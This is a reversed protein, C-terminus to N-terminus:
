ESVGPTEDLPENIAYNYDDQTIHGKNLASLLELRAKKYRKLAVAAVFESDM